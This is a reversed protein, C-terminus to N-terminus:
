EKERVGETGSSKDKTDGPIDEPNVSGNAKADDIKGLEERKKEIYKNFEKGNNNFEVYMGIIADLQRIVSFADEIAKVLDNIKKNIEITVNAAEQVSPKKKFKAM